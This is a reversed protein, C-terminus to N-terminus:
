MLFCRSSGSLIDLPMKGEVEETVEAPLDSKGDSGEDEQACEEESDPGEPPVKHFSQEQFRLGLMIDIYSAHGADVLEKAVHVGDALIDVKWHTNSVFERFFIQLNKQFLCQQFFVAAEDTWQEDVGIPKVGRLICPYTMKPLNLLEEPLRKLKSHDKYPICEYHGYDVLNLVVTTDAHVIESRCWKNKSDSKLLCCTGHVLHVEPLPSMQGPLDDLMISMKNMMLLFDELAVCFEFPTTVAAAFGFYVKDIEIPAFALQQPPGTDLMPKEEAAENPTETPSPIMEENEQVSTTIQHGLLLRNMGIEVMWHNEAESYCVFVLNIEKGIMPKLTEYWLKHTDEGDSLGLCDIKCLVALNPIETLDGCQRRVSGSPIEETIGYDVLLVKCKEGGVHQVFARQWKNDKHVQVLCKLGQKVDEKVVMECKYLSDAICSELTAFLDNASELRVYFDGNSQVSLVTGNERDKDQITPSIFVDAHDKMAKVPSTSTKRQNRKSDSKNAVVMESKTTENESMEIRLYNQDCYGVKEEIGTSSVPPEDEKEKKHSSEVAAELAAPLGDKGDLIEIKVEWHTGNQHVFDVMLPKEMVADCFSADNEYSSTDLLSCSISFRPQSLHEMPILYINEKGVVASNGYDVFEVKFCSSGECDKVVSRYLAGDEEYEALVVDNIRLSTATKENINVDGDFLEVDFSGNESKGHIIAKVQKNLVAKDLWEKADSYLEEKSVSSLCCRVAQMPTYLLDASDGVFVSDVQVEEAELTKGLAEGMITEYYLYGGQPSLEETEAVSEVEMKPLKQIPELKKVNNDEAGIMTVSYLHHEEDFSSIEMDLVGGLLGAKLFSLQQTKVAEDQDSQSSLSCPFAMISASYLDPPLRHVNEVKVSEFFGYDIFLVRVQSNIPLFQVFGRHWKGDKGKVSCLLGLNEQTKQNWNKARNECVEALKKSMEWLDTEM